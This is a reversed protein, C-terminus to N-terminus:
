SGHLPWGRGIGAFTVRRRNKYRPPFENGCRGLEPEWESQLVGSNITPFGDILQNARRGDFLTSM